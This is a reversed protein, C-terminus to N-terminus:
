ADEQSKSEPIERAANELIMFGEAMMRELRDPNKKGKEVQEMLRLLAVRVGAARHAWVSDASLRELRDALMRALENRSEM